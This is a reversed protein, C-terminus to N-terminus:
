LPIPLFALMVMRCRQSLFVAILLTMIKVQGLVQYRLPHSEEAIYNSANRLSTAFLKYSKVLRQWQVYASSAFRTQSYTTAVTPKVHLQQATAELISRGSPFFM